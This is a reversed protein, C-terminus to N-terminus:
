YQGKAAEEREAVFNRLDQDDERIQDWDIHNKAWDEFCEAFQEVMIEMIVEERIDGNDDVENHIKQAIRTAEEQNVRFINDMLRINM